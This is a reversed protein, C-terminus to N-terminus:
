GSKKAVDIDMGVIRSKGGKNVQFEYPPYDPSTVMILEGRQKVRQLSNDAASASNTQIASVTLLTVFVLMMQIIAKLKKM